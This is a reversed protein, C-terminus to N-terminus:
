KKKLLGDIQLIEDNYQQITISLKQNNLLRINNINRNSGLGQFNANLQSFELSKMLKQVITNEIYNHFKYLLWDIIKKKKSYKANEEDDVFEFQGFKFKPFWKDVFVMYAGDFKYRIKIQLNKVKFHFNLQKSSNTFINWLELHVMLDFQQIPVMILITNNQQEFEIDIQNEDYQFDKLNIHTLNAKLFQEDIFQYNINIDQKELQSLHYSIHSGFIEKFKEKNIEYDKDVLYRQNHQDGNDMTIKILIGFIAFVCAITLPEM